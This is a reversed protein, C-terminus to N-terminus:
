DGNTSFCKSVDALPVPLRAGGDSEAEDLTAPVHALQGHVNVGLQELGGIGCESMIVQLSEGAQTTLFREFSM